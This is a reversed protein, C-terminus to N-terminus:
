TGTVQMDADLITVKFLGYKNHIQFYLLFFTDIVYYTYHNAVASASITQQYM